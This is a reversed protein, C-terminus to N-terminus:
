APMSCVKVGPFAKVENLFDATEQESGGTVLVILGNGSCGEIEHVGLRIKIICGHKTLIEQIKPADARRNDVSLAIIQTSM